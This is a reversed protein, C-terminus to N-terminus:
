RCCLYQGCQDPLCRLRSQCQLPSGRELGLQDVLLDDPGLFGMALLVLDTPLVKEAGPIEKMTMRGNEDAIWEIEVTHVEKVHGEADGVIKKTTACYQRPDSRWLAM